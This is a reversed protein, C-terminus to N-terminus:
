VEPGHGVVLDLTRTPGIVGVVCRVLIRNLRGIGLRGPGPIFGTTGRDLTPFGGLGYGHHLGRSVEQRTSEDVVVTIRVFVIPV